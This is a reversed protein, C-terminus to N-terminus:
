LLIFKFFLGYLYFSLLFLVVLIMCGYDAAEKESCRGMLGSKRIIRVIFATTLFSSVITLVFVTGIDTGKSFAYALMVVAMFVIWAIFTYIVGKGGFLFGIALFSLLTLFAFGEM